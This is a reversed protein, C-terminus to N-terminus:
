LAPRYSVGTTNGSVEKCFIAATNRPAPLLSYPFQARVDFRIINAGNLRAKEHPNESESSLEHRSKSGRSEKWSIYDATKSQRHARPARFVVPSQQGRERGASNRYRFCLYLEALDCNWNGSATVPRVAPQTRPNRRCGCSRPTSSGYAKALFATAHNSFAGGLVDPGKQSRRPSEAPEDPPPHKPTSQETGTKALERDPVENRAHIGAARRPELRSSVAMRVALFGGARWRAGQALIGAASTRRGTGRAHDYKVFIAGNKAPGRVARPNGEKSWTVQRLVTCVHAESNRRLTMAIVV